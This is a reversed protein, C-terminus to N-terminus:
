PSYSRSNSDRCLNPIKKEESGRGSRSQPGGLRRDLPYRPSKVRLLATPAHLQGSVEMLTGLYLIRPAIGRSEWYAKM